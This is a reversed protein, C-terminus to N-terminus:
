SHLFGLEFHRSLVKKWGSDLISTLMWIQSNEKDPIKKFGLFFSSNGPYSQYIYINTFLSAYKTQSWLYLHNKIRKCVSPHADVIGQM